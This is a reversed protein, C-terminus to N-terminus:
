YDVIHYEMIIHLILNKNFGQRERRRRDHYDGLLTGAIRFQLMKKSKKAHNSLVRRTVELLTIKLIDM